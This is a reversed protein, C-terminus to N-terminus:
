EVEKTKKAAKAKPKPKAEQTVEQPAEVNIREAVPTNLSNSKKNRSRRVGYSGM